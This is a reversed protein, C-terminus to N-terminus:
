VASELTMSNENILNLGFPLSTSLRRQRLADEDPPLLEGDEEYIVATYVDVNSSPRKAIVPAPPKLTVHPPQRLLQDFLLDDNADEIAATPSKM